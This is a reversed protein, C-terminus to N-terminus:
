LMTFNNCMRRGNAVNSETPADRVVPPSKRTQKGTRKAKQSSTSGGAMIRYTHPYLLHPEFLFFLFYIHFNSNSFSTLSTLTWVQPLLPTSSCSLHQQTSPCLLFLLFSCTSMPKTFNFIPSTRYGCVV